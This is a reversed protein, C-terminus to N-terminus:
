LDATSVSCESNRSRHIIAPTVQRGDWRYVHDGPRLCLGTMFSHGHLSAHDAAKDQLLPQM